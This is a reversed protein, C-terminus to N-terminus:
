REREAFLKELQVVESVDAKVAEKANNDSHALNIFKMAEKLTKFSKEAM